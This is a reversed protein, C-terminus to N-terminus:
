RKDDTLARDITEWVERPTYSRSRHHNGIEPYAILDKLRVEIKRGTPKNQLLVDTYQWGVLDAYVGPKPTKGLILYDADELQSVEIEKGFRWNKIKSTAKCEAIPQNDIDGMKVDFADGVGDPLVRADVIGDHITGCAFQVSYGLHTPNPGGIDRTGSTDQSLKKDIPKICHKIEWSPGRNKTCDVFRAFPFEYNTLDNIDDVTKLEALSIELKKKARPFIARLNKNSNVSQQQSM